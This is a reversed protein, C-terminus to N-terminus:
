EESDSSSEEDEESESEIDKKKLKLFERLENRTVFNGPTWLEFYKEIIKLDKKKATSGMEDAFMVIKESFDNVDRKLGVIDENGTRVEKMFSRESELLNQDTLQMKQRLNTYREELIRLRRDLDSIASALVTFPDKQEEPQNVSPNFIKQEANGINEQNTEPM